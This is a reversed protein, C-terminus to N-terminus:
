WQVILTAPKRASANDVQVALVGTTSDYSFPLGLEADDRWVSTPRPECYAVFRGAARVAVRAEIEVEDAGVRKLETWLVAGGSNLMETLGIPAWRVRGRSHVPAITVIEWERHQLTAHICAETNPLLHLRAGRHTWAAFAGEHPRLCEADSPRVLASVPAPMQSAVVAGHTDFDWRSGQVNFAGVVANPPCYAVPAGGSNTAGGPNVGDSVIPALKGNFNWLKLASLGDAGVDAFLCDRTPRGVGSARLTTGDPLVLRRLLKIDHENPADSVYVPCGGIARAAAHLGAAEHLSTFMDWDPLGFEGLFLSNYGVNIIHMTHSAPRNPYFDDSARIVNGHKYRYLNETSHCMCHILNSGFSEEVSAELADVYRKALSACGGVGGGLSALGSQVDVKVGDVGAELLPAHLRKFFRRLHAPELVLGCGWIMVADWRLQPEVRLLHRSPRAFVQSVTLGREEGLGPAVGRWYGHLAHWVFVHQVGDGRLSEVLSALHPGSEQGTGETAEFKANPRYSDLQRAFDTKTDYYVELTSKLPGTALFTWIFVPLSGHHSRCVTHEYWRELLPVVKSALIALFSALRATVAIFFAAVSSVSTVAVAASSGVGMEEVAQKTQRKAGAGEEVASAARTAAEKALQDDSGDVLEPLPPPPTVSQWGDDLIVLRPPVGARRLSSAGSLVDDPTVKSYFGDWTCWGFVDAAVPVEKESRTRFTGLRQAVEAIGREILEYPDSGAAVYVLGAGAPVAVADDGTEVHLKLACSHHGHPWLWSLLKRFKRPAQASAGSLSSRATRDVLPLMLAYKQRQNAALGNQGFEGDQNCKTDLEILLFQTDLPIDSADSAVAPAMWYRTCRACALLRSCRLSGLAVDATACPSRFDGHLFIGGSASPSARLTPDLGELLPAAHSSIRINTGELQVGVAGPPPPATLSGFALGVVAPLRLM